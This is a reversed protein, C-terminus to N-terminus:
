VIVENSVIPVITRLIHRIALASISIIAWAPLSMLKDPWLAFPFFMNSDVIVLESNFFYISTVGYVVIRVYMFVNRLSVRLAPLVDDKLQDMKKEAEILKRELLSKKVLELQASKIKSLEIKLVIREKTLERVQASKRACRAYAVLIRLMEVVAVVCVLLLVAASNKCIVILAM